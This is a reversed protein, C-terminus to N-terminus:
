LYKLLHPVFILLGVVAAVVAAMLVSAAGLDKPKGMQAYMEPNHDRWVDCLKEVATNMYEATFVVGMSLLVACWEWRSLGVALGVIIVVVSIFGHLKMNWERLGVKLGQLAYRFSHIVKM